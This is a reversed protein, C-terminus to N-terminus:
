GDISEVKRLAQPAPASRSGDYTFLDLMPVEPPNLVIAGDLSIWCHARPRATAATAPIIAFHLLPKYGARSLFHFGLLGERLCRRHRMLWPRAATKKVARLIADAPMKDQNSSSAKPNALKLIQDLPRNRVFVPLLRAAIWMDWPFPLGTSPFPSM